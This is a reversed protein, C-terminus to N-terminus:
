SCAATTGILYNFPLQGACKFIWRSTVPTCTLETYM